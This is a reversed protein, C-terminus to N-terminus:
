HFSSVWYGRPGKVIGLPSLSSPAMVKFNPTNSFWMLDWFILHLLLSSRFFEGRLYKTGLLYVSTEQNKLYSFEVFSLQFEHKPWLLASWDFHTIYTGM